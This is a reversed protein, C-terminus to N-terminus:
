RLIDNQLYYNGFIYESFMKIYKNEVIISLVFSLYYCLFHAGISACM